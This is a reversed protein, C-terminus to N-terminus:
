EQYPNFGLDFISTQEALNGAIVAKQRETMRDYTRRNTYLREVAKTGNGIASSLITKEINAIEIFESPMAYESIYINDKRLAWEYFDDHNFGNYKGCNTDSYPIDCYILAGEPIPVDQYSIGFSQLSQLSQLRQLSQLSQLSQLREIETQRTVIELQATPAQRKIQRQYDLYRGYVTKEASPSLKYGWRQLDAFEGQYVAKHYAHKMDEIDVGYLYDKGNNGFSWVLAIYADSDKKRIFEGRSVWEPHNEVTHKGYACELFLKPLRADIDNIIFRKYKGTLMARHTVTGGGFFLDCFVDAPPLNDVIWEAISNKSGKYPLGYRVSYGGEHKEM